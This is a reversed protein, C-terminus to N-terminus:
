PLAVGRVLLTAPEGTVGEVFAGVFDQVKVVHDPPFGFSQTEGDLRICDPTEQELRVVTFWSHELSPDDWNPDAIDDHQLDLQDGPHLDRVAIESPISPGYYVVAGDEIKGGTWGRARAFAYLAVSDAFVPSLLDADKPGKGDTPDFLFTGTAGNAATCQIALHAIKSM